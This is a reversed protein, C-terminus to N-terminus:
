PQRHSQSGDLDDLALPLGKLDDFTQIAELQKRERSDTITGPDISRVIEILQARSKGLIAELAPIAVLQLEVALEACDLALQEVRKVVADMHEDSSAAKALEPDEFTRHVLQNRREIADSIRKDLDAPLNLDRLERLLQGATLNELRSLEQGLTPSPTADEAAHRVSLLRAIELQLTKELGAAAFVARGIAMLLPGATEDPEVFSGTARPRPDGAPDPPRERMM